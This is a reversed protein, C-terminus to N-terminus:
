EAEAKEFALELAGDADTIGDTVVREEANALLAEVDAGKPNVAVVVLGHQGDELVDTMRRVVDKPINDWFHGVLGGAGAWVAGTAVVPGLFVIGLPASIVALAGGLLGTGWAAHKASTNHRDIHLKGEDDKDVIAVALHDIQGQRKIGRLADYDQEAGAADSYTAVAVTMPKGAM